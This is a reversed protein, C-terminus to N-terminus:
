RVRKARSSGTAVQATTTREPRAYSPPPAIDYVGALVNRYGETWCRRHQDCYRYRKVYGNDVATRSLVLPEARAATALSLGQLCAVSMLALVLIKM